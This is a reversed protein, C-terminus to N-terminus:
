SYFPYVDSARPQVESDAAFSDTVGLGAFALERAHMWGQLTGDCSALQDMLLENTPVLGHARGVFDQRAKKAPGPGPISVDDAGTVLAASCMTALYEAMVYVTQKVSCNRWCLLTSGEARLIHGAENLDTFVVMVNHVAISSAALLEAEAQGQLDEFNRADTKFDVVIRGQAVVHVAESQMFPVVIADTRGKFEYGGLQINLLNRRHVDVVKYGGVGVAVGAEQLYAALRLCAAPTNLDEGGEWSFPSFSALFGLELGPLMSDVASTVGASQLIVGTVGTTAKSIQVSVPKREERLVRRMVAEINASESGSFSPIFIPL